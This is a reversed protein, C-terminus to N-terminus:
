WDKERKGESGKQKKENNNQKYYDGRIKQEQQKLEELIKKIDGQSL